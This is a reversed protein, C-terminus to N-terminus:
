RPLDLLAKADDGFATLEVTSAGTQRRVLGGADTGAYIPPVDKHWWTTEETLRGELDEFRVKIRQARLERGAVTVKDEATERGTEGLRAPAAESDQKLPQPEVTSKQGDKTIEGYYAKHIVGDPSVLLASIMRPDGEEIEEIWVRDGAVGVAALTVTRNGERYTAWQGPRLRTVDGYRYRDPIKPAVIRPRKLEEPVKTVKSSSGSGFICGALAPLILVALTRRVDEHYLWGKRGAVTEHYM